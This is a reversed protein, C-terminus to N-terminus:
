IPQSTTGYGYTRSSAHWSSSATRSLGHWLTSSVADATGSRPAGEGAAQASTRPTSERAPSQKKSLSPALCLRNTEAACAFRPIPRTLTANNRCTSDAAALSTWKPPALLSSSDETASVQKSPHPPQTQGPATEAKPSSALTGATSTEKPYYPIFSAKLTPKAKEKSATATPKPLQGSPPEAERALKPKNISWVEELQLPRKPASGSAGDRVKEREIPKDEDEDPAEEVLGLIDDVVENAGVAPAKVVEKSEKEKREEFYEKRNLIDTKDGYEM